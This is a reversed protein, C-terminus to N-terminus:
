RTLGSYLEFSAGLDGKELASRNMDNSCNNVARRAWKHITAIFFIVFYAHIRIKESFFNLFEVM